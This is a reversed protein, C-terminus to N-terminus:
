AGCLPYSEKAPHRRCRVPPWHNCKFGVDAAPAQYARDICPNASNDQAMLGITSVFSVVVLTAVIIAKSLRKSKM